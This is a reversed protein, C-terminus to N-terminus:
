LFLVVTTKPIYIQASWNSGFSSAGYKISNDSSSIKMVITTSSYTTGGSSSPYTVGISALTESSKPTILTWDEISPYSTDTSTTGVHARALRVHAFAFKIPKSATFTKTYNSSSPRWSEFVYFEYDFSSALIPIAALLGDM